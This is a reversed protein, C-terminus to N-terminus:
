AVENKMDAWSREVPPAEAAILFYEGAVECTVCLELGAELAEGWSYAREESLFLNPNCAATPTPGGPARWPDRDVHVLVSKSRPSHLKCVQRLVRAGPTAPCALVKAVAERFRRM